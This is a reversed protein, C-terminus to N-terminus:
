IMYQKLDEKDLGKAKITRNSGDQRLEVDTLMEDDADSYSVTISATLEVTERPIEGIVLVTPGPASMTRLLLDDETSLSFIAQNEAKNRGVVLRTNPGIRFHRGVKLLEIDRLEFQPRSSFLDKLRRSFAKETLLCGSAPSPYEKIGLREALEMQPKRSRGTFGKLRARDVWGNTEPITMPLRKASLPRLVLGQFGCESDIVSISRRNQSMPRQGLVEGTFIFDAGEEELMEGAIRFMLTHCDICPNMNKGYGHKPRKVLELHRHTINVVRISLNISKASKVPKESTFFPTEFFLALVEIDQARILESALMSDLGGSFVSLAKM